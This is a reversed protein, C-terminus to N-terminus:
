IAQERALWGLGTTIALQAVACPRSCPAGDPASYGDVFQGRRCNETHLGEKWTRRVFTRLTATLLAITARPDLEDSAPPGSVSPVGPLGRGARARVAVTSPMVM